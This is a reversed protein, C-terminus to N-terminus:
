RRGLRWGVPRGAVVVHRPDVFPSQPPRTRTKETTLNVLLVEHRHNTLLVRDTGAPSPALDRIRGFDGRVRRGDDGGDGLRVVLSEEGEDDSVMVIRNGDSMWAALRSRAVSPAGLRLPAGEWLPMTVAAGRAVVAM